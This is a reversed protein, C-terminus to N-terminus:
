ERWGGGGEGREGQAPPHPIECGKLKLNRARNGKRTKGVGGKEIVVRYTGTAWTMKKGM